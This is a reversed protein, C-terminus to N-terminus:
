SVRVPRFMVQVHGAPCAGALLANKAHCPARLAGRSQARARHGPRSQLWNFPRIKTVVLGLRGPFGPFTLFRSRSGLIHTLHPPREDSPGVRHRHRCAQCSAIDQIMGPSEWAFGRICQAGVPERRHTQPEGSQGRMRGTRREGGGCLRCEAAHEDHFRPHAGLELVGRPRVARTHLGPALSATPQWIARHLAPAGRNASCRRWPKAATVAPSRSPKVLCPALTRRPSPSPRHGRRLEFCCSFFLPIDQRPLRLVLAEPRRNTLSGDHYAAPSRAPQERSRPSAPSEDPLTTSCHGRCARVRSCM